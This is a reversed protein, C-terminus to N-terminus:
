LLGLAENRGLTRLTARVDANSFDMTFGEFELEPKILHVKVKPAAAKLRTFGIELDNKAMEGIMVQMARLAIERGSDLRDHPWLALADGSTDIVFVEAEFDRNGKAALELATAALSVPTYDRIGAECFRHGFLDVPPFMLPVAASAQIFEHLRTGVFNAHAPDASLELLASPAKANEMVGAHNSVAYMLSDTLSVTAIAWNRKPGLVEWHSHREIIHRLPKPDIAADAAWASSSIVASVVGGAVGFLGTKFVSSDNRIEEDWLRLVADVGASFNPQMALLTCNLAGVGAGCYFDVSPVKAKLVELAGVQFEGLVGGSSLVISRWM